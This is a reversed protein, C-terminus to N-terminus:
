RGAHADGAVPRDAHHDLIVQAATAEARLIPWDPIDSDWEVLTPTAGRRSVVIDFLKWVADAVPGDHAGCPSLL